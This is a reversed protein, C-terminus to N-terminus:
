QAKEKPMLYDLKAKSKLTDARLRLLEIQLNLEEIYSQVVSRFDSADSQYANLTSESQRHAQPLLTQQYQELRRELGQFRAYEQRAEAMLKRLLESKEATAAERQYHSAALQRDQRNGTFLPIDVMLMLSYQDRSDSGMSSSLDSMSRSYKVEAGWQPKYAERALAVGQESQQILLERTNILPHIQVAKMSPASIGNQSPLKNSLEVSSDEGLWRNLIVRSENLRSESSLVRDDLRALALGASILDQQSKKGQRYMSETVSRLSEFLYRNEDLMALTQQWYWSDLWALRVERLVELKRNEAASDSGRAKLETKKSKIQNSDGRPLMQEIKLELMGQSAPDPNDGPLNMTGISVRPDSWSEDAIALERYGRSQKEYAQIMPDAALAKQEAESLTLRDATVGASVLLLWAASAMTRKLQM